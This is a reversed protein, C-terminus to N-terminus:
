LKGRRYIKYQWDPSRSRVKKGPKKPQPSARHVSGIVLVEDDNDFEPRSLLEKKQVDRIGIALHQLQARAEDDVLYWSWDNERLWQKVAEENLPRPAVLLEANEIWRDREIVYAAM